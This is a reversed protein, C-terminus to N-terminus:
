VGSDAESSRSPPSTEGEAEPNSQSKSRGKPERGGRLIQELDALRREIAGIRESLGGLDDRDALRLDAIADALKNGAEEARRTLDVRAAGARRNVEERAGEGRRVWEERAEEGRRAWEERAEEGRRAVEDLLDRARQRTESASGATAALTREVAARLADQAREGSAPEGPEDPKPDAVM